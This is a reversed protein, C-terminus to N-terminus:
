ETYVQLESVESWNRPPGATLFVFAVVVFEILVNVPGGPIAAVLVILIIGLIRNTNGESIVGELLLIVVALIVMLFGTMAYALYLYFEMSPIAMVVIQGFEDFYQTDNGFTVMLVSAASYAIATLLALFFLIIGQPMQYSQRIGLFGVSQVVLGIAIGIFALAYLGSDQADLFMPISMLIAIFTGMSGIYFPRRDFGEHHDEISKAACSAHAVAGVYRVSEQGDLTEGCIICRVISKEESDHKM